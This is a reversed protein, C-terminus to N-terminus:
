GSPSPSASPPAPSSAQPSTTISAGPTPRPLQIAVASRVVLPGIVRELESALARGVSAYATPVKDGTRRLHPGYEVVINLGVFTFPAQDAVPKTGTKFAAAKRAAASSSYQSLIIPWGDLTANIRKLPEGGSGRDANNASIAIGDARLQNFVADATAPDALHPNATPSPTAAPTSTPAPAAATGCGAALLGAVVAAPVLPALGALRGRRARRSRLRGAVALGRAPRRARPAVHSIRVFLGERGAVGRM